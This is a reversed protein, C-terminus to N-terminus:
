PDYTYLARGFGFYEPLGRWNYIHKAVYLIANLEQFKDFHINGTLTSLLGWNERVTRNNNAHGM